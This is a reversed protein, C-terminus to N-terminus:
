PTGDKWYNKNYNFLEFQEETRSYVFDALKQNYFSQWPIDSSLFNNKKISDEIVENLEISGNDIFWLNRLDKELFEIRLYYDPVKPLQNIIKDLFITYYNSNKHLDDLVVNIWTEFNVSNKTPNHILWLHYLSVIRSYPNRINFILQYDKRYETLNIDHTGFINFNYFNHVKICSRTGTRTPTIWNIKLSDSYNM